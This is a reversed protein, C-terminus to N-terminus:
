ATTNVSTGRINSASADGLSTYVAPANDNANTVAPVTVPTTDDTSDTSSATTSNTTNTNQTTDVSTVSAYASTAVSASPVPPPTFAPLSPSISTMKKSWM